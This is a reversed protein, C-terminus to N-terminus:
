VAHIQVTNSANLRRTDHAQASADGGGCTALGGGGGGEPRGGGRNEGGGALGGGPLAGGVVGKGERFGGPM